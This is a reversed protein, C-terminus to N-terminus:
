QKEETVADEYVELIPTIVTQRLETCDRILFCAFLFSFFKIEATQRKSHGVTWYLVTNLDESSDPITINKSPCM